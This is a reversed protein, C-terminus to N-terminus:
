RGSLAAMQTIYHGVSSGGGTVLITQSTDANLLDVAYAATLGPIGFCAATEFDVDDDLAVVQKEPLCICEAATGFQRQWQGNWVWVREGIRAQDVGEGVAQIIGAGDSHPVIFDFAPERGARSKVDSPNVGSTKLKVLIEGYGPQPDPTTVLELVADAPGNRRYLATKM